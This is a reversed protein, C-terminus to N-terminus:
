GCFRAASVGVVLRCNGPCLPRVKLLINSPNLDGHCIRKSHVYAMGEAVGRLVSAVVEWRSPLKKHTFYGRQLAGRLSGGNCFEQAAHHNCESGCAIM